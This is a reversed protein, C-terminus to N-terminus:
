YAGHRKHGSLTSLRSNGAQRLIGHRQGDAYPYYRNTMMEIEKKDWGPGGALSGATCAFALASRNGLLPSCLGQSILRAGESLTESLKSCEDVNVVPEMGGQILTNRTM